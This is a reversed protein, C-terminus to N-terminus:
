LNVARGDHFGDLGAIEAILEDPVPADATVAMVADDAGEEAGV